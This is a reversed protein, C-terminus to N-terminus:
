RLAKNWRWHKPPMNWVQEADLGHEVLFQVAADVAEPDRPLAPDLPGFLLQQLRRNASTLTALDSGDLARLRNDLIEIAAQLRIGIAFALHRVERRKRGVGRSLVRLEVLSRLVLHHAESWGPESELPRERSSFLPRLVRGLSLNFATGCDQISRWRMRRAQLYHALLIGLVVGVAGILGGVAAAAM